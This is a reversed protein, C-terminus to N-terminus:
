RNKFDRSKVGFYKRKVGIDINKTEVIGTIYTPLDEYAKYPGYFVIARASYTLLSPLPLPPTM